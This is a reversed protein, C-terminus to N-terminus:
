KDRLAIKEAFIQELTDHRFRFIKELDPQVFFRNVMAGFPVIYHVNDKVLTGGAVSEFVHEHYWKKYPGRLQQDVFRKCPEWVCIETRWKIPIGHLRIQYDLLSGQKLEIPMPTLIKFNVWPPTIRGLERADAFFDFVEEIPLGVFMEATLRFGSESDNSFEISAQRRLSPSKEITLM